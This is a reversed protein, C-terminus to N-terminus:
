ATALRLIQSLAYCADVATFIGAIGSKDVVVVSGIKLEAMAAVAEDLPMTPEVVYPAKVMVDAVSVEDPNGLALSEFIHLDRDSLVGCLGDNGVVPLHRIRRSLMLRHADAILATPPITVPRQTM